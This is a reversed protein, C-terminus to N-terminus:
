AQPATATTPYVYGPAPSNGAEIYTVVTPREPDPQLTLFKYSEYTDDTVIYETGDIVTKQLGLVNLGNESAVLEGFNMGDYAYGKGPVGDVSFIVGDSLEAWFKFLVRLSVRGIYTVSTWPNGITVTNVGDTVIRTDAKNQLMARIEGMVFQRLTVSAAVDGTSQKRALIFGLKGLDVAGDPRTYYAFLAGSAGLLAMNARTFSDLQVANKTRVTFFKLNDSSRKSGVFRPTYNRAYQKGNPAEFAKNDNKAYLLNQNGSLNGRMAEVPAIFEIRKM